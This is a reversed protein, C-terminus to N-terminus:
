DNFNPANVNHPLDHRIISKIRGHHNFLLHKPVHFYSLKNKIMIDWVFDAQMVVSNALYLLAADRNVMYCHAGWQFVDKEVEVKTHLSCLDYVDAKLSLLHSLSNILDSYSRAEDIDDELIIAYQSGTKMFEHMAMRHAALCAVENPTMGHNYDAKPRSFAISSFDSYGYVGQIKNYKIEIECSGSSKPPNRLYKLPVRPTDLSVLHFLQIIM